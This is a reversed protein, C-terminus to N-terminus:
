WGAVSVQDGTLPRAFLYGQLLDCGAKVLEDREEVCEIGEATVTIGLERCMTVMTRVLAQKTPELHVRRVLEMDLKVIDPELLAFSVLRGVTDDPRPDNLIEYIRRRMVILSAM